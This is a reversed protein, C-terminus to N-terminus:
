PDPYQQCSSPHLTHRCAPSRLTMLATQTFRLSRNPDGAIVMDVLPGASSAHIRVLSSFDFESFLDDLTGVRCTYAAIDTEPQAEM